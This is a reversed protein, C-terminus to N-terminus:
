HLFLTIAYVTVDVLLHAEATDYYMLYIFFWFLLPEFYQLLLVPVLFKECRKTFGSNYKCFDDIIKSLTSM